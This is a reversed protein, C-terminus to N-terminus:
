LSLFRSVTAQASPEATEGSAPIEGLELVAYRNAVAFAFRVHQEVLLMTTGATDRERILIGVLREIVSPQMGETIEDILILKPQRILARAVLLMKQEGGSLTGAKQRLRDKLFPFLDDIRAFLAKFDRDRLLALKLNEEVTLDQFLAKEQPIYAVDRRAIRNPPMGTTREGFLAVEGDAPRIYGMLTKLLTSKGMGNKGLIAMVEGRALRLDLGKLVMAEGYGSKLADVQVIAPANM